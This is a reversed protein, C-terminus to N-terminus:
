CIFIWMDKDKNVLVNSIKKTKEFRINIKGIENFAKSSLSLNLINVIYLYSLIKMWM